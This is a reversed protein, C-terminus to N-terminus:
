GGEGGTIKRESECRRWSERGTLRLYRDGPSFIGDHIFKSCMLRETVRGSAPSTAVRGDGDHRREERNHWVTLWRVVDYNIV